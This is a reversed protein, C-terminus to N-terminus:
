ETSFPPTEISCAKTAERADGKVFVLVNQHVKGLKRSKEMQKSARIPMSSIANLLIAENYFHLGADLFIQITNGILNAYNGTKKDRYEGVVIVAFRNPKLRRLSHHLIKSYSDLFDEKNMNSIDASHKSYVELNGYPPCTFFMDALPALGVRKLSDGQIWQIVNPNSSHSPGERKALDNDKLLRFISASIFMQIDQDPHRKLHKELQKTQDEGFIAVLSARHAQYAPVSDEAKFCKLSRYRNRVILTNSSTLTFPSAVCGFPKASTGHVSCMNDSTKLPCKKTRSSPLVFGAKDIHRYKGSGKKTDNVKDIAKHVRKRETEHITVMIGTKSTSSECCRAGCVDNIFKPTCPHFMQLMSKASVKVPVNVADPCILGAQAHNAAIQDGSLDCGWYSRGLTHAVIGRVSGGAFPDIVQGGPPSFWSYMLECLVPDFISVDKGTAGGETKEDMWEKVNFARVDRGLESEIGMDIWARKRDQWEGSKTDLVSFPPLVFRNALIKEGSSRVERGFLDVGFVGHRDTRSM